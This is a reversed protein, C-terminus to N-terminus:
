FTQEFNYANECFTIDLKGSEMFHLSRKEIAPTLRNVRKLYKAIVINPVFNLMNQEGCGQPMRLLKDLNNVTPGLLDGLFFM